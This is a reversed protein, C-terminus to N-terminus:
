HHRRRRLTLVAGGTTLAALVGTVIYFEVPSIGLISDALREPPTPNKVTLFVSTSHTTGNGTGNVILTYAGPPVGQAVKVTLSAMFLDQPGISLKEPQVNVTPGSPSITANLQLTGTFGYLPVIDLIITYQSGTVLTLSVPSAAIAFDPLPTVDVLITVRLYTSGSKAITLLAYNGPSAAAVTVAVARSVGLGLSVVQTRPAVTPGSPSVTSTVSINAPVPGTNALTLNLSGSAGLPFLLNSPSASLTFEPRDPNPAFSTDTVGVWAKASVYSYYNSGYVTVNLDMLFGTATDWYVVVKATFGPLNPIPQTTNLLDVTRTIGWYTRPVTANITASPVGYFNLPIVDGRALNAAIIWGTLNGVGTQVNGTITTNKLDTQNLLDWAQRAAVDPSSVDEVQTRISQTLTLSRFPEPPPVIPPISVWDSHVIGYFVWDGKNVGPTYVGAVAPVM